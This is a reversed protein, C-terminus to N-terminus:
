GGGVENAVLKGGAAQERRIRDLNRPYISIALPACHPALRDISLAQPLQPGISKRFLTPHRRLFISSLGFVAHAAVRDRYVGGAGPGRRPFNLLRGGPFGHRSGLANWKNLMHWRSSPASNIETQFSSSHRHKSFSYRHRGCKRIPLDTVDLHRRSVHRARGVEVLPHEAPDDPFAAIAASGKVIRRAWQAAGPHEPGGAAFGPSRNQMMTSLTAEVTSM